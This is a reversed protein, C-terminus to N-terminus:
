ATVELLRRGVWEAVNSVVGNGCQRYRHTDAQGATWGDPWSMLRECEVPTLKRPRVGSGGVCVASVAKLTTAFNKTFKDQKGQTSYFTFYQNKVRHGQHSEQVPLIEGSCKEAFGSDFVSVLFVRRRRQPVGFFLADLVAWECVLAGAGAMEDLIVGFDEGKNSSLANAVNEWISVKPYQGDTEERLENIIRMGEHFLGSKSGSLGSKKGVLSLDQCPSGWAVVDPFKGHSLIEKATLTSVDGWRPVDPWHKELVASAKPDWECQYVTSFGARELGLDLGGVGSFLSLVNM